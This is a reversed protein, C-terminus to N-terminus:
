SKRHTYTERDIQERLVCECECRLTRYLHLKAPGM